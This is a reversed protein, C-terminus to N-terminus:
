DMSVILDMLYLYEQNQLLYKQTLQHLIENLQGIISAITLFRSLVRCEKYTGDGKMTKNTVGLAKNTRPAFLQLAEYWDDTSKFWKDDFYNM